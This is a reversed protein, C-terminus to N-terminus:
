GKRSLLLIKHEKRRAGAMPGQKQIVYRKCKRATKGRSRSKTKELMKEQDETLPLNSQYEDVKESLHAIILKEESTRNRGYEKSVKKIRGKLTQWTISASKQHSSSICSAIEENIKRVYEVERLYQTNLKWYGSGRENYQLDIAMYFARHDSLIGPLYYVAKANQDLGASVLAYDIRSAKETKGNKFWSYERKGPNQIRWVENLCYQDSMDLIENMAKNNNHYTDKRDLDVDLTTNFDGIIIKNENRNELLHSINRFFQPTDSNPAYVAIITIKQGQEIIDFMLLRGENDRYINTVYTLMGKPMFVAIGRAASTGHNYIADGGWESSWIKEMNEESHTEQIILMDANKRYYEFIAKRKTQNGMGRVNATVLRFAILVDTQPLM